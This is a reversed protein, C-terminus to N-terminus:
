AIGYSQGSSTPTGLGSTSTNGGYSNTGAWGSGFSYGTPTSGTYRNYVDNAQDSANSLADMTGESAPQTDNSLISDLQASEETSSRNADMMLKSWQDSLMFQQQDMKHYAAGNWILYDNYQKSVDIYDNVQIGTYPGTPITKTRQQMIKDGRVVENPKLALPKYAQLTILPSENANTKNFSVTDITFGLNQDNQDVSWSTKSDPNLVYVMGIFRTKCSCPGGYREEWVRVKLDADVYEYTGDPHKTVGKIHMKGVTYFQYRWFDHNRVPSPVEPMVPIAMSNFEDFPVNSKGEEKSYDGPDPKDTDILLDHCRRLKIKFGKNFYGGSLVM